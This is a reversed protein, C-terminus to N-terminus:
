EDNLGNIAAVGDTSIQQKKRKIDLKYQATRSKQSIIHTKQCYKSGAYLWNFSDTFLNVLPGAGGNSLSAASQLLTQGLLTEMRFRMSPEVDSQQCSSQLSIFCAQSLRPLTFLRSSKLSICSKHLPHGIQDLIKVHHGDQRAQKADTKSVLGGFVWCINLAPVLIESDYAVRFYFFIFIDNNFCCSNNKDVQPCCFLSFTNICLTKFIKAFSFCCWREDSSWIRRKRTNKTEVMQSVYSARKSCFLSISWHM